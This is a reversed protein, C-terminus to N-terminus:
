HHTTINFRRDHVMIYVPKTKVEEGSWYNTIEKHTVARRLSNALKTAEETTAATHIQIGNLHVTIM